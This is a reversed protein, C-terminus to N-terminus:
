PQFSVMPLAASAYRPQAARYGMGGCNRLRIDASITRFGSSWGERRICEPNSAVTELLVDEHM